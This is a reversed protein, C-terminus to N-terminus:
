KVTRGEEKKLIEMCESLAYERESDLLHVLMDKQVGTFQNSALIREKSYTVAKSEKSNEADKNSM